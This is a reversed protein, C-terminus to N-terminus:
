ERFQLGKNTTNVVTMKLDIKKNFEQNLVNFRLSLHPNKNIIFNYIIAKSILSQYITNM